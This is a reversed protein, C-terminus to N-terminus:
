RSCLEACVSCVTASISIGCSVFSGGAAVMAVECSCSALSRDGMGIGSM